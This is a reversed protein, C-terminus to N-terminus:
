EVIIRKSYVGDGNSISLIYVGAEANELNMEEVHDSTLNLEKVMVEQGMMNRVTITLDLDIVNTFSLTFSGNNPNPFVSVGAGPNLLNEIGVFVESNSNRSECGNSELRAAVSDGDDLNTPEYTLGTVGAQTWSSSGAKKFYWIASSSSATYVGASVSISPAAPIAKVNVTLTNSKASDGCANYSYVFYDHTHVSDTNISLIRNTTGNEWKYTAGTQGTALLSIPGAGQCIITSGTSAITVSAAPETDVMVSDQAMFTGACALVEVIYTGTTTVDLTTRNSLVNSSGSKTWTYAGGPNEAVMLNATDGPCLFKGGSITADAATVASITIMETSVGGVCNTVEISYTGPTTVVFTDVNTAVGSNNWEYFGSSGISNHGVRLTTQSGSPCLSSQDSTLSVKPGAGLAPTSVQVEETIVGCPTTIECSYTGPTTIWIGSASSNNNWKYLSGCSVSADLYVSDGPCITREGAIATLCTVPTSSIASAGRTVYVISNTVDGHNGGQGVPGVETGPSFDEMYIIRVSDAVDSAMAGYVCEEFGSGDDTLDEPAGWTCGGDASKIVFQHRYHRTGDNYPKTASETEMVGMFTAYLAGNADTGMSPYGNISKAGYDTLGAIGGTINLTNPDGDQDILDVLRKNNGDGYSERWYNLGNMFPFTTYQHGGNTARDSTDNDSWTWTGFMVHIEDNKDIIVDGTNDATYVTDNVPFDGLIYDRWPLELPYMAKWTDGNDMSKLVTTHNWRHFVAIAIVDGKAYISYSDANFGDYYTSDLGPIIVSQKDWTVGGDKSRSYVIAGDLGMYRNGNFTTGDGEPETLAILHLTEGNAGGVAMRPWLTYGTGAINAAKAGNPDFVTTWAGTGKTSRHSLVLQDTATSHSLIIEKGSKTVVISPWGVREPEVRTTPSDVTWNTGNHYLYGAGRDTYATGGTQSMTYVASISGDPNRVIRDDISSNTMLDYITTGVVTGTSSAASARSSRSAQHKVNGNSPTTPHFGYKDNRIVESADSKVGITRDASTLQAMTTLSTAGALVALFLQKRM